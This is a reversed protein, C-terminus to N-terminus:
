IHKADNKKNILKIDDYYHQVEQELMFLKDSDDWKNQSYACEEKLRCGNNSAFYKCIKGTM